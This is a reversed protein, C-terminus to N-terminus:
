KGHGGESVIRATREAIYRAKNDSLIPYNPLNVMEGAARAANDFPQRIYRINFPLSPVAYDLTKGTEIGAKAMKERFSIADRNKIRLAYHSYTADPIIPPKVMGNCDELMRDYMGAIYARRQIIRDLKGLQVLGIKGQFDSFHRYYDKVAALSQVNISERLNRVSSFESARYLLAYFPEKLVLYSILFRFFRSCELMTSPRSFKRDRFSKLREYMEDSDTAAIGGSGTDLHKCVSLSFFAIDGKIGKKGPVYAPSGLSADEILLIGNGATERIRDMECPYGYFHTAIVAKTEKTLASRVAEPTMNYDDLSIDAFVPINSSFVVANPVVVCTYAPVVVEKNRIEMAGLSATIASRCYPFALAHRAGIRRAFMREFDERGGRANFLAMLEARNIFSRNKSIM